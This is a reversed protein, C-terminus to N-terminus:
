VPAPRSHWTVLPCPPLSGLNNTKDSDPTTTLFPFYPNGENPAVVVDADRGSDGRVFFTHTGAEILRMVATNRLAWPAGGALVGGLHSIFSKGTGSFGHRVIGTVQWRGPPLQDAVATSYMEVPQWAQGHLNYVYESSELIAVNESITDTFTTRQRHNTAELETQSYFHTAVGMFEDPDAGEVIVGPFSLKKVIADVATAEAVRTIRNVVLNTRASFVATAADQVSEGDAVRQQIQAALGVMNLEAVAENLETRVLENIADHAAEAGADSTSNEELLVAVAGMRGPVEIDRGLVHLVIPQLTTVFRGVAPPITRTQGIGVGGGLNGHSGPSFFYGPQGNLTPSNPDHTITRGDLTFAIVWLYPESVGEDAGHYCFLRDFSLCVPIEAM